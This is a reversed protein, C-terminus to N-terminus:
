DFERLFTVLFVTKFVKIKSDYFLNKGNENGNNGNCQYKNKSSKAFGHKQVFEERFNEPPKSIV